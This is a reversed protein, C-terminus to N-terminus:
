EARAKGSLLLDPDLAVNRVTGGLPPAPKNDVLVQLGTANGTKLMLGKSDPVRYSDGAHLIRQAVVTQAADSDRVQIWCDKIARLTIRSPGDVAGFVHPTDAANAAAPTSTAATPTAAATPPPVAAAVAAPAPAAPASAPMPAPAAPVTAAGAPLSATPSPPPAPSTATPEPPPLPTATVPAPLPATTATQTPPPATTTPTAPTASAAPATSSAPAAPAASPAPAPAASKAPAPPPMLNSPVAAVREPRNMEVTSLYQWFFYACVALVLALLLVRGGPISRQTLPMPFSLDRRQEFGSSELKFRRVAEEPDLGLHTAYSRVFGLGYVAGPLRESRGQEIADLYAARIRLAAAIGELDGGQELRTRRLLSGITDRPRLPTAEAAPQGRGDTQPLPALKAM